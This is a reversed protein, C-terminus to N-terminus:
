NLSGYTEMVQLPTAYVPLLTTPNPERPYCRTQEMTDWLFLWSIMAFMNMWAAYFCAQCGRYGDRRVKKSTQSWDCEPQDPDLWPRHVSHNDPGPNTLHDATVSTVSFALSHVTHIKSFCCLDDHNDDDHQHQKLAWCSACICTPANDNLKWEM